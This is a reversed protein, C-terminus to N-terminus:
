MPVQCGYGSSQEWQDVKDLNNVQADLNFDGNLYGSNGAEDSWVDIKDSNNVQGDANGDSSVMGWIGPYIEKSGAM